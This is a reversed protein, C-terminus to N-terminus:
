RHARGGRFSYSRAYPPRWFYGRTHLAFEDYANWDPIETEREARRRRMRTSKLAAKRATREYNEFGLRSARRLHAPLPRRLEEQTARELLARMEPELRSSGTLNELELRGRHTTLDYLEAEEGASTPKISGPPWNTYTAFKATPTRIASVHLPANSAYAEIAYETVIEDTAHLIYPRGAASPDALMRALDARRALHEYYPERRWDDSGSAITLLLPAVDVSSTLQRRPVGTAKTLKGRPDKVLLPVRIAEEYASAGKGRMGHSAGYEGHDSTFVVVTKAAVRPNSALIKLVRGVEYDVRKQLKVYLDLFPLWAVEVDPGEYPIPGFSVAATDQLSVQLRPKAQLVQESTEFNPPLRKTVEPAEWEPPVKNTWKYWWAIDHPNVLSVTTCWPEREGELAFWEAFQDVIYPDVTTGQGPGGDPSPYTGGSFGYPELARAARPVHWHNDNHTLHWKGYWYTDYGQERMLTGWTPFGASLTSGGTIMCGTQHTYLGTLLAARAPTCDNSATYHSEFCVSERSLRTLHPLYAPLVRAHPMWHPSTRMQDVMVVLVNPQEASGSRRVGRSGHRPTIGTVGDPDAAAGGTKSSGCGSLAAAAGAGTALLGGTILGRKVFTRRDIGEPRGEGRPEEELSDHRNNATPRPQDSPLDHV